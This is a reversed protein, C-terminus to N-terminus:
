AYIRWVLDGLFAGAGIIFLILGLLAWGIGSTGKNISGERTSGYVMLAIGGIIGVLIIIWLWSM